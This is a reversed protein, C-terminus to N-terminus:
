TNEILQKHLCRLGVEKQDAKILITIKIESTSIMYLKIKQEYLIKFLTSLINTDNLIGIGVVSIKALNTFHLIKKIKLKKSNNKLLKLVIELDNNNICFSINNLNNKEISQSIMDLKIGNNGLLNIIKNIEENNNKKGIIVVKTINEQATIGSILVKEIEQEEILNTGTSNDLFTSKVKIPIHYKKGIEVCRNHLVKAGLSSLELMEDYSINNIKSVSTITRPDASFIGDVDTYIDCRIAGLCAALAVATTDSGGRGLTTINGEEDIGQFGAIVVIKKEKLYELIKQNNIYKIKANSHNNDTIIPIQWGTLSVAKYGKEILCMCLKSITIQEGVSLLVDHERKDANKTIEKEENILRDTMKGQASLVVVVENEKEYEKIIHECVKNLKNTDAVSTGGFKQVIISM